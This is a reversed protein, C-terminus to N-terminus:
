ELRYLWDLRCGGQLSYLWECGSSQLALRSQVAGLIYSYSFLSLSSFLSFSFASCVREKNLQVLRILSCGFRSAISRV